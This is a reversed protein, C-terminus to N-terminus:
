CRTTKLIKMRMNMIMRMRMKHCVNTQTCAVSVCFVWVRVVVETDFFCLPQSPIYKGVGQLSDNIHVDGEQNVNGTATYYSLVARLSTGDHPIFLLFDRYVADAVMDRQTRLSRSM